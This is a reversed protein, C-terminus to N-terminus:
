AKKANPSLADYEQRFKRQEPRGDKLLSTQM